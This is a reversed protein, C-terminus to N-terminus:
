KWLRKRTSVYIDRGGFGGPRDSAFYLSLDDASIYAGADDFETDIPAGLPVPESWADGISCRTSVWLDIMGAGGPRDTSIFMELGDASITSGTDRYPSSLEKNLVAPGFGPWGDDGLRSTYIDWDGLGPRDSGFYLITTGTEEDHFLNPECDFANSNVGPGLNVPTGWAFDDHTDARHSVWIDLRGFGPPRGTCFLLWHGDRSLQPGNNGFGPANIEPGLIQAPGWEDDVRARQSVYINTIGPGPRDSHFYLSLGDQSISPNREAFETNIGPGLNVPESWESFKPTCGGQEPRPSTTSGGEASAAVALGMLIIVGTRNM